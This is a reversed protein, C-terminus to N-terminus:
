LVGIGTDPGQREGEACLDGDRAPGANIAGPVCEEPVDSAGAEPDPGLEVRLVVLEGV